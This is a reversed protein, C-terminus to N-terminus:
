TSYESIFLDLCDYFRPGAHVPLYASILINLYGLILQM